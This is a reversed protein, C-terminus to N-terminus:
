ERDTPDDVLRRRTAEVSRLMDLKSRLNDQMNALRGVYSKLVSFEKFAKCLTEDQMVAMELAKETMKEAYLNVWEKRMHIYTEAELAELDRKKNATEISARQLSENIYEIVLPLESAAEHIDDYRKRFYYDPDLEIIDNIIKALVPLEPAKPKAKAVAARPKVSQGEQPPPPAPAATTKADPM